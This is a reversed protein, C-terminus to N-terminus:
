TVRGSAYLAPFQARFTEFACEMCADCVGETVSPGDGPLELCAVWHDLEEIWARQHVSCYPV